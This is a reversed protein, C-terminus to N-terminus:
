PRPEPRVPDATGVFSPQEQAPTPLASVSAAVPLARVPVAGTPVSPPSGARDPKGTLEAVHEQIQARLDRDRERLQEVQCQLRQLNAQDNGLLLGRETATAERAEVDILRLEAEMRTRIMEDAVYYTGDDLAGRAQLEDIWQCIELEWDAATSLEIPPSHRVLRISDPRHVPTLAEPRGFASLHDPSVVGVGNRRDRRKTSWPFPM